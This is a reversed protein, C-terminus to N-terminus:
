VVDFVFFFNFFFIDSLTFKYWFVKYLIVNLILLKIKNRRIDVFLNINDFNIQIM